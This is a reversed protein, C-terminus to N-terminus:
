KDAYDREVLDVVLTSKSLVARSFTAEPGRAHAKVEDNIGKAKLRIVKNVDM